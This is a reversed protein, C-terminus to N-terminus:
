PSLASFMGIQNATPMTENLDPVPNVDFIEGPVRMALAQLAYAIM